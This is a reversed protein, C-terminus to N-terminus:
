NQIELNTHWNQIQKHKTNPIKCRGLPPVIRRRARNRFKTNKNWIKDALQTNRFKTNKPPVIRRRARNRACPLFSSGRPFATRRLQWLQLRTKKCDTKKCDAKEKCLPKQKAIHNQIAIQKKTKCHTSNDTNCHPKTKCHPLNDTNCHSAFCVLWKEAIQMAKCQLCVWALVIHLTCPQWVFRVIKISKDFWSYVAPFM